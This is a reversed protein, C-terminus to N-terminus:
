IGLKNLTNHRKMQISQYDPCNRFQVLSNIGCHNAINRSNMQRREKSILKGFCYYIYYEDEVECKTFFSITRTFVDDMEYELDSDNAFIPVVIFLCLIIFGVWTFVNADNFQYEILNGNHLKQKQSFSKMEFDGDDQYIYCYQKDIKMEKYIPTVVKEDKFSNLFPFLLITLIIAVTKVKNVKIFNFLFLATFKLYKM